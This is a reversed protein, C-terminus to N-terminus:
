VVSKRDKLNHGEAEALATSIGHVKEASYPIIFGEPKVIYSKAEIFNGKLDHCQWALQVIRPWNSFDDLPANDRIPLGTTETDFILFM